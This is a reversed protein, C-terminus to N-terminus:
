SYEGPHPISTVRSLQSRIGQNVEELSYFTRNRLPAYVRTYANRVMAEVLAKDKPKGPRAPIIATRYHNAFEELMRNLTPEYRDSRIVASKLNDPVLGQPVGGLFALTHNLAQILDETKQSPLAELYSYQSYGLTAIFVQGTRIEGSPLDVYEITQGAFDLYLLDGPRHDLVACVQNQKDLQGLRWCFQSYSYGGPYAQKYETWLLFRTVGTRALERRLYEYRGQLDALREDRTSPQSPYLLAELEHDDLSLLEELPRDLERAMGLYKRVTNRSVKVARASWRISKGQHHHQLIQKITSMPKPKRAMQEPAQNLM